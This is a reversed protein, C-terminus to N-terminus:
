ALLASTKVRKTSFPRTPTAAVPTTSLTPARAAPAARAPAGGSSLITVQSTKAPPAVARPAPTSPPAPPRQVVVPPRPRAPPTIPTAVVPVLVEDATPQTPIPPPLAKGFNLELIQFDKFDVVGDANLDGEAATKGIGGFNNRLIVFDANDVKGDGTADGVLPVTITISHAYVRNNDDHDTVAFSVIYTGPRTPTFSFNQTTAGPVVQGTNTVVSWAFTFNSGNFPNPDQV